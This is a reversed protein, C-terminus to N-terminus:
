LFAGVNYLWLLGLCTPFVYSEQLGPLGDGLSLPSLSYSPDCQDNKWQPWVEQAALSAEPNEMVNAALAKNCKVELQGGPNNIIKERIM